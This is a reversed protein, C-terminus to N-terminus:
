VPTGPPAMEAAALGEEGPAPPVDGPVAEPAVPPANLDVPPPAAPDVPGGVPAASQAAEPAVPPPANAEDLLRKCEDRFTLLLYLTEEGMGTRLGQLYKAHALRQGYALPMAPDPPEYGAAGKRIIQAVAWRVAKGGALIVSAEAMTDPMDSLAEFTMQDITGDAKWKRLKEFKASPSAPLIGTPYPKVTYSDPDSLLKELAAFEITRLGDGDPDPVSVALTKPKVKKGTKESEREADEKAMESADVAAMVTAEALEVNSGEWLQGTPLARGQEQERLQNLAEGSELNNPQVGGTTWESIGISRLAQEYVRDREAVLDKPIGDTVEFQPATGSYLVIGGYTNDLHAPNVNAGIDVLWRGLSGMRAGEEIYYNLVNLRDQFGELREAISVGWLGAPALEVRFFAGPFRTHKWTRQRLTCGEHNGPVAVVRRGDDGGRVSPLFWGTYIPILPITKDPVNPIPYEYVPAQEIAARRDANGKTDGPVNAYTQIAQWPSLWDVIFLQRPMGNNAAAEFENFILQDPIVRRIRINHEPTEDPEVLLFGLGPTAADFYALPLLYEYVKNGFWVGTVFLEADKAMEQMEYDAGTTQFVVRVRNRTIISKTTNEAAQIVNWSPHVLDVVARPSAADMMGSTLIQGKHRQVLRRSQSRRADMAVELKKATDVMAPGIEKPPKTWWIGSENPVTDDLVIKTRKNDM